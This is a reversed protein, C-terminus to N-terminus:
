FTCTLSYIYKIQNLTKFFYFTFLFIDITKGGDHPEISPGFYISVFILSVHGLFVSLSLSLSLSLPSVKSPQFSLPSRSLCFSTLTLQHSVLYHLFLTFFSLLIPKPEEIYKLKTWQALFLRQRQYSNMLHLLLLLNSKLPSLLQHTWTMKLFNVLIDSYEHESFIFVSSIHM